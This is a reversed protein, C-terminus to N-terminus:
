EVPSMGFMKTAAPTQSRGHPVLRREFTSPLRPAITLSQLTVPSSVSWDPTGIATACAVLLLANAPKPVWRGFRFPSGVSGDSWRDVLRQNSVLTNQVAGWNVIPVLERLGTRPGPYRFRSMARMRRTCSGALLASSNRASNKLRVFVGKRPAGFPVKPAAAKPVIVAAPSGRTM